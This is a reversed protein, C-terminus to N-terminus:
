RITCAVPAGNLKLVIGSSAPGDSVTTQSKLSNFKIDFRQGHNSCIDVVKRLGYCSGSLLVIDDAYIVSYM